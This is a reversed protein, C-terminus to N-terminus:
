VVREYEQALMSGETFSPPPVPQLSSIYDEPEFRDMEEDIM